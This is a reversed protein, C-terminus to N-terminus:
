QQYEGSGGSGAGTDTSPSKSAPTHTSHAKKKSHKKHKHSPTTGQKNGNSDMEQTTSAKGNDTPYTSDSSQALAAMSAASLLTAFAITTVNKRIM